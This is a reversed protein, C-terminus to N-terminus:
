KPEYEDRCMQLAMEDGHKERRDKIGACAIGTQNMTNVLWEGSLEPPVERGHDPSKYDPQWPDYISGNVGGDVRNSTLWDAQVQAESYAIKYPSNPHM